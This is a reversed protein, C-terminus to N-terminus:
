VIYEFQSIDPADPFVIKAYGVASVEGRYAYIVFSDENNYCYIAVIYEPFLAKSVYEIVTEYQQWNVLGITGGDVNFALKLSESVFEPIFDQMPHTGMMVPELINLLVTDNEKAATRTIPDLLKMEFKRRM